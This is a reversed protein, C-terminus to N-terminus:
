KGLRITSHDLLSPQLGDLPSKLTKSTKSMTLTEPSQGQLEPVGCQGEEGAKQSKTVLVLVHYGRADSRVGDRMISPANRLIVALNGPFHQNGDAVLRSSRSVSVGNRLVFVRGPSLIKGAQNNWSATKLLQANVRVIEASLDYFARIDTNCNECTM